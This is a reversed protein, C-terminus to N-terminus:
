NWLTNQEVWAWRGARNYLSEENQFVSSSSRVNLICPVCNTFVCKRNANKLNCLAIVRCPNKCDVFCRWSFTSRASSTHCFNFFIIKNNNKIFNCFIYLQLINIKYQFIWCFDCAAMHRNMMTFFHLFFHWYKTPFTHM